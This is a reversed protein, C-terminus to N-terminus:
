LSLNVAIARIGLDGEGSCSVHSSGPGRSQSIMPKSPRPAREMGLLLTCLAWERGDPQLRPSTSSCLFSLSRSPPPLFSRLCYGSIRDTRGHSRGRGLPSEDDAPRHYAKCTITQRYPNRSCPLGPVASKRRQVAQILGNLRLNLKGAGSAKASAHFSM